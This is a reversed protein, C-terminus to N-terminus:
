EEASIACADEEEVGLIDSLNWLPMGDFFLDQIDEAWARKRDKEAVSCEEITLLASELEKLIMQKDLAIGIFVLESRRDGFRDDWQKSAKLDELGEASLDVADWAECDDENANESQADGNPHEAIVKAMWPRGAPELVLQRGVSHVDIPCCDANSLWLEGKCRIVRAFIDKADDVETGAKAGSIEKVLATGFNQLIRALREPHFPRENNRFVFSNIGYEETEPTHHPKELEAIWGASQQAEDMDFLGTNLVRSTDFKEFKPLEPVIVTAKPNLKRLVSEIAQIQSKVSKEGGRLLDTKNLLIVSAFEIQDILLQVVSEESEETDEVDNSGFYKERDAEKEVCGLISAFNFADVVTVLTDMTAFKSLPEFDPTKDDEEGGDEGEADENTDMVFTQAVPLPESIGTSEIVLYDYKEELALEKVTRLLDGRLTCCICGNHM